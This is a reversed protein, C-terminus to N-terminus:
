IENHSAWSTKTQSKRVLFSSLTSHFTLSSSYVDSNLLQYEHNWIVLTDHRMRVLAGFILLDDVGPSKILYFRTYLRIAVTLTALGTFITSITLVYM